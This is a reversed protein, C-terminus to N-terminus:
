VAHPKASRRMITAMRWLGVKQARNLRSYHLGAVYSPRLSICKCLFHHVARLLLYIMWECVPLVNTDMDSECNTEFGKQKNM